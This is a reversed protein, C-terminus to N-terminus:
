VRHYKITRDNNTLLVMREESFKIIVGKDIAISSYIYSNIEPIRLRNWLRTNIGNYLYWVTMMMSQSLTEFPSIHPMTVFFNRQVGQM